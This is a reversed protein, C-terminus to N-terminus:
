SLLRRKAEEAPIAEGRRYQEWAERTGADEDETAPEDDEPALLLQAYVPDGDALTLAELYRRAGELGAEPLNKVLAHLEDRTTM